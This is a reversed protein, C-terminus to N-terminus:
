IPIQTQKHKEDYEEKRQMLKYARVCLSDPLRVLTACQTRKLRQSQTGGNGTTQWTAASRAYCVYRAKAEPKADQRKRCNASQLGASMAGPSAATEAGYNRPKAGCGKPQNALRQTMM